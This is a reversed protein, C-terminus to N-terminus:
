PIVDGTQESYSETVPEPPPQTFRKPEGGNIEVLRMYAVDLRSLFDFVAEKIVAQIKEDREVKLALKPLRRSYSVFHWRKWGTVFLSFHCQHSYEDPLVGGLLYKVQNPLRPNKLEIGEEGLVGDPSCGCRGDDTTIFAPRHIEAGFQFQLWDRSEEEQLNGQDTAFSSFGDDIPQGTWLEALKRNLYSKPMEGKRIEWKPTVLNDFESATITSARLQLWELSGQTGEHIKM